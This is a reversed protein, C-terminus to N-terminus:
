HRGGYRADRSGRLAARDDFHGGPCSLADAGTRDRVLRADTQCCRGSTTRGPEIRAGNSLLALEIEGSTQERREGEELNREDGREM